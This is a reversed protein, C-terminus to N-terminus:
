TKGEAFANVVINSKIGTRQLRVGPLCHGPVAAPGKPQSIGFVFQVPQTVREADAPRKAEVDLKDSRFPDAFQVREVIQITHTTGKVRGIVAM